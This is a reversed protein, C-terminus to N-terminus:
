RNQSCRLRPNLQPPLIGGFVFQKPPTYGTSVIQRSRTWYRNPRPKSIKKGKHLLIVFTIRLVHFRGTDYLFNTWMELLTRFM